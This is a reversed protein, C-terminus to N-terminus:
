TRLDTGKVLYADDSSSLLDRVFASEAIQDPTIRFVNSSPSHGWTTSSPQKAVLDSCFEVVDVAELKDGTSM